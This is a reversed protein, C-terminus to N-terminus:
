KRPEYLHKEVKKIKVKSLFSFNLCNDWNIEDSNINFVKYIEKSTNPIISNLLFSIIKIRNVLHNLVQNLFIYKKEQFLKWPVLDSIMKNSSDLFNKIQCFADTLKYKDMKVQFEKVLYLCEHHYNELSKDSNFEPIIGGNYLHVMKSIRSVLNSLNNVLFDQYFNSLLDESFVGDQFFNIKAILYTRILDAPYKKLLGLPDFVNGKSKSMKGTPTILWGHVLIKNPLRKNLFFLIIPWYIAHFRVIEKGILHVIEAKSDNFKNEGEASNIYNLLAEFWVYIVMKQQGPVPIGWNIDSRTICLNPIEEKLFNSFLEKRANNPLLFDPNKRYHEILQSYYKSVRLFYAPENITRLEAQCTPCFNHNIAKSKSVYDECTICYKGQYESLYIDGQELLKTFINKIKFHHNPSSTRYFVHELIGLEKWLQQFLSVNKDVLEQPSSNLSLAKKEIKEGHDDSGTQFYVQYGQSSKYRVIIDAMIMAYAHGLHLRDNPYFIPTTIFFTKVVM